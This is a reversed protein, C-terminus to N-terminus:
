MYLVMVSVKSFRQWSHARESVEKPKPMTLPITGMTTPVEATCQSSCRTRLHSCVGRSTCRCAQSGPSVLPQRLNPHGQFPELRRLSKLLAADNLKSHHKTVLSPRPCLTEAQQLSPM